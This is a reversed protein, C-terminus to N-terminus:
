SVLAYVKADRASVYLVGDGVAMSIVDDGVVFHWRPAAAPNASAPDFAYVDKGIAMYVLGNSGVVASPTLALSAAGGGVGSLTWLQQGSTGDVAYLVRTSGPGDTSIYVKGSSFAPTTDIDGKAPTFPWGPKVSASTGNDKLAYLAHDTGVYITGDPAVIPSSHESNTGLDISWAVVGSAGLDDIAMLEANNTMVYLRYHSGFQVGAPSADRVGPINLFWNLTGNKNFAHVVGRTTCGCMM